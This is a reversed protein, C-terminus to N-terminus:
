QYIYVTSVSVGGCKLMGGGLVKEDRANKLDIFRAHFYVHVCESSKVLAGCKAPKGLVKFDCLFEVVFFESYM